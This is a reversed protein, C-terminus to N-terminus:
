AKWSSFCDQWHLSWLLVSLEKRKPILQSVCEFKRKQDTMIQAKLTSRQMESNQRGCRQKALVGPARSGSFFPAAQASPCSSSATFDQKTELNTAEQCSTWISILTIYIKPCCKKGDRSVEETSHLSSPYDGPTMSHLHSLHIFNPSVGLCWLSESRCTVCITPSKFPVPQVVHCHNSTSLLKTKFASEHNFSCNRCVNRIKKPM